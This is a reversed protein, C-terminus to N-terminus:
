FLGAYVWYCLLSSWFFLWHVQVSLLLIVWCSCCLSVTFLVQPITGSSKVSMNSLGWFYLLFLTICFFIRLFLSLIIWVVLLQNMSFILLISLGRVLTALYVFVCILFWSVLVPSILTIVMSGMYVLLIILFLLIVRYLYNRGSFHVM